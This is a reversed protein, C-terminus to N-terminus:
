TDECFILKREKQKKCIQILRHWNKCINVKDNKAYDERM